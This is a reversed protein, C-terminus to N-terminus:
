VNQNPSKASSSVARLCLLGAVLVIADRLRMLAIVGIAATAPLGLSQFSWLLSAELTGIGGPLPLLLALRTAVLILIVGSMAVDIGLIHLVVVMEAVIGGWTLLSLAFARLLAPKQTRVATQLDSGLAQWHDDIKRLRPSQLWRQALKETRQSIWQPRRLISWGILSMALVLALLVWLADYWNTATNLAPSFLLLIIGLILVSFNIWLEYFRDLGLALVAHHVAIGCRKYLWWIQLPEGGFQPGPTLFSVTQGAQRVLLLQMFTVPLQLMKTLMRWRETSILIIVFNIASWALWDSWTLAEMTQAISDLPMQSLVWGVLAFAVFWLLLMILKYQPM